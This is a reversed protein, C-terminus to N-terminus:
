GIGESTLRSKHMQWLLWAGMGLCLLMSLVAFCKIIFSLATDFSLIGMRSLLYNWDHIPDGGGFPSLLPLNMVRADAAYRAVDFLSTSLWGFCLAISFFDDQRYFNIAGLLPAFIQFLTGGLMHLFQGFPSFILHGFEHLGLNLAGLLSSYMPNSLHKVLIYAFWVLFPLRVYWNKGRCWDAAEIRLSNINLSMM